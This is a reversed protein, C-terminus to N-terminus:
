RKNRELEPPKEGRVWKGFLDAYASPWEHGYGHMVVPTLDLHNLQANLVCARVLDDHIIPLMADAPQFKDRYMVFFRSQQIGPAIAPTAMIAALSGFGGEVLGFSQFHRLIFGDHREL